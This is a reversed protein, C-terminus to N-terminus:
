KKILGYKDIRNNWDKYLEEKTVKLNKRVFEFNGRDGCVKMYDFGGDVSVAGCGCSRFDHTARSYIIDGCKLCKIASIRMLM